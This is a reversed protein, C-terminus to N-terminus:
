TVLQTSLVGATSIIRYTHGDATDKIVPGTVGSGSQNGIFTLDGSDVQGSGMTFLSSVIWLGDAGTDNYTTGVISGDPSVCLYFSTVYPYFVSTNGYVDVRVMYANSSNAVYINGDPAAVPQSLGGDTWPITRVITAALPDVVYITAPDIAYVYGDRGTCCYQPNAGGPLPISSSSGDPKVAVVAPTTTDMAYVNGDPGACVNSISVSLPLWTTGAGVFAPAIIWVGNNVADSAYMKGDPGACILDPVGTPSSLPIQLQVGATTFQWISNTGIDAVYINGDAGACIGNPAAAPNSFPYFTSTGDVGVKWVGSAFDVGAKDAVWMSGDPGACIGQPLSTGGNLLLVEISNAVGCLVGHSPPMPQLVGSPQALPQTPAGIPFPGGSSRAPGDNYTFSAGGSASSILVWVADTPGTPDYSQICLWIGGAGGETTFLVMGQIAPIGNPTNGPNPTPIGGAEQLFLGDIQNSTEAGTPGYSLLTGNVETGDPPAIFTFGEITASGNVFLFAAVDEGFGNLAAPLIGFIYGGTTPNYSLGDLVQVPVPGNGNYTLNLTPVGGGGGGGGSGGIVIYAWALATGTSVSVSELCVGLTTTSPSSSTQTAGPTSPSQVLYEGAVTSADVLIRTIGVCTVTAVKGPPVNPVGSLDTGASVVGIVSVSSDTSSPQITPVATTPATGPGPYADVQVV